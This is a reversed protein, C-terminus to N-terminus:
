GRKAQQRGYLLMMGIIVAGYVIERLSEPAEFIARWSDPLQVIRLISQLLTILIVGAITGLYSGRGGLIYTGGLVVAAISPLLYPDGMAQAAKTGYGALMVGALASCGGAIAFCGVVVARTNVGSLYAAAESNGFAFISRGFGTRKLVFVILAGVVAWVMLSHPVGLSAGSGLWRMADTAYDQPAAGGTLIVMLGQLVANVGLTFIMSPVRLFAVGFGNIAGIAAGWLLGVPIALLTGADGWWGAVATSIMAASTLVWPISLDIHGLLIVLMVGSAIVGLFAGLQLQKLLYDPSLFSSTYLSGGLLLAVVCAFALLVPRDIRGFVRLVASV